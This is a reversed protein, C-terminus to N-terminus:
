RIEGEISDDGFGGTAVTNDYLPDDQSVTTPYFGASREAEIFQKKTVRHWVSQWETKLYYKDAM